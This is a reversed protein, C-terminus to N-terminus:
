MLGLRLKGGSLTRQNRFVSAAHLRATPASGFFTAMVYFEATQGPPPGTSALRLLFASLFAVSYATTGVPVSFNSTTGGSRRLWSDGGRSYM